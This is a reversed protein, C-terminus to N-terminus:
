SNNKEDITFLLPADAEPMLSSNDQLYYNEVKRLLQKIGVESLYKILPKHKPLGRYARFLALGGEEKDEASIKEKATKLLQTVLTKQAEYLQHIRPKFAAYLHEDSNEVPGSIILPTRADDILVSDVEDVIAFHLDRQVLEETNTAMNDRLYDFGFENNTGYVIDAKYAQQREKSHAPYKNICDVKLGHFQYIPGMWEADRKALYDNVTVIHVGRGMLANLFAPLTAVLTKGEGTAMEAIRGQHLIVGGVLQVDYPVMNWVMPNGAVEWQNRWIAKDGQTTVYDVQSALVYDNPTATVILEENTAFRRATEKVIAFAQPLLEMMVKEIREQEYKRLKVVGEYRSERFRIDISEDQDVDKEIDDIEDVVPRLEGRAYLQMQMSENRLADNSLDKLQDYAHNIQEVHPWLWKLDRESKTGFIKTFLKLLM